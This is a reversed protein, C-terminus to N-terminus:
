ALRRAAVTFEFVEKVTRITNCHIEVTDNVDKGYGGSMVTVVPVEREYCERLVCLDRRRLGDITM